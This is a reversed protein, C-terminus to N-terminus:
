LNTQVDKVADLFEKKNWEAKLVTDTWVWHWEAGRIPVRYQVWFYLRRLWRKIISEHRSGQLRFEIEAIIQEYEAAQRAQYLINRAAGFYSTATHRTLIGILEDMRNTAVLDSLDSSM